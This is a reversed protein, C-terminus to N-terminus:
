KEGGGGGGGGGLFFISVKPQGLSDVVLSTAKTPLTSLLSPSLISFSSASFVFLFPPLLLPVFYGRPEPCDLLQMGKCVLSPFPLCYLAQLFSVPLVSSVSYVEYSSRTKTRVPEGATEMGRLVDQSAEQFENAASTMSQQLSKVALGQGRQLLAFFPSPPPPPSFSLLHSSARM